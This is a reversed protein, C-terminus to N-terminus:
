PKDYTSVILQLNLGSARARLRAESAFRDAHQTTEFRGVRVRFWTGRGAIDASVVYAPVGARKLRECFENAGSENPFAAAQLSYRGESVESAARAIQGQTHEAAAQEIIEKAQAGALSAQSALSQDASAHGPKGPQVQALGPGSQSAQISSRYILFYGAVGLCVLAAAVFPLRFSQLKSHEPGKMLIPYDSPTSSWDEAPPEIPNTVVESPLSEISPQAGNVPDIQLDFSAIENSLSQIESQLATMADASEAEALAPPEWTSELPEPIANSGRSDDESWFPESSYSPTEHAAPTQFSEDDFLEDFEFM